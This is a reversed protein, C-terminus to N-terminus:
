DGPPEAVPRATTSVTFRPLWRCVLFSGGSGLIANYKPNRKSTTQIEAPSMIALPLVGRGLASPQPRNTTPVTTAIAETSRHALIKGAMKAGAM